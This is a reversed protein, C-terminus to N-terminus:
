DGIRFEIVRAPIYMADPWIVRSRSGDTLVQDTHVLIAGGERLDGYAREETTGM